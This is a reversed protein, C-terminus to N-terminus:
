FQRSLVVCCFVVCCFLVFFLTKVLFLSFPLLTQPMVFICQAKVKQSEKKREKQREKQRENKRERSNNMDNKAQLCVNLGKLSAQL